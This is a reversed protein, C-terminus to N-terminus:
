LPDARFKESRGLVLDPIAKRRRDYKRTRRLVRSPGKPRKKPVCTAFLRNQSAAASSQAVAGPKKCRSSSTMFALLIRNGVSKEGQPCSASCQAVDSARSLPAVITM